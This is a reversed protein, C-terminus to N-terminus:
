FQVLIHLFVTHIQTGQESWQQARPSTPSSWSSNFYFFSKTVIFFIRQIIPSSSFFTYIIKEHYVIMIDGNFLQRSLQYIIRPRYCFPYGIQRKRFNMTKMVYLTYHHRFKFLVAIPSIYTYIHQASFSICLM